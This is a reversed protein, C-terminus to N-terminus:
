PLARAEYTTNAASSLAQALKAHDFAPGRTKKEPDVLIFESGAATATSYWFRGDDLWTPRVAGGHILPNTNYGMMKEARAYDASTFKQASVPALAALLLISIRLM